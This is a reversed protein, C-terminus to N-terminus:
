KRPGEFAAFAVREDVRGHRCRPDGAPDTACYARLVTLQSARFRAYSPRKQRVPRATTPVPTAPAAAPATVVPTTSYSGRAVRGVHRPRHRKAVKAPAPTSAVPTALEIRVPDVRAPEATGCGALGLLLAILLARVSM